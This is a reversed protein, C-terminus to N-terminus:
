AGRSPAGSNNLMVKTEMGVYVAIGFVWEANKIECGRFVVNNLGLSIERGDEVGISGQSGHINLNPM